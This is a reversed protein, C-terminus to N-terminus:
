GGSGRASGRSWHAGPRDDSGDAGSREPRRSDDADRHLWPVRRERPNGAPCVGLGRDQHHGGRRAQQGRLRIRLPPGGPRGRFRHQCHCRRGSVAHAPDRAEHLAVRWDPQHGAGPALARRPLRRDSNQSPQWNGRQQLCLGPTWLGGRDQGGSAQVVPGQTVDAKTFLAKGGGKVVLDVTERGGAESIDAIMLRAGERMFALATARGIGSAGGTVLAVKGDLQAAM